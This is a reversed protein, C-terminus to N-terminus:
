CVQILNGLSQPVTMLFSDTAGAYFTKRASDKLVRSDSEALAGTLVVSVEASTGSGRQFGTHVQIEYAYADRPHNDM